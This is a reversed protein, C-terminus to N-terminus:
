LDCIEKVFGVWDSDSVRLYNGEPTILIKSPLGYISFIKEIKDDSMAVPFTYNSERLHSYVKIKNDHCAITLLIIKNNSSDRITEYFKQVEDL